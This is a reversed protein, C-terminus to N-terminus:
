AKRCPDRRHNTPPAPSEPGSALDAPTDIDRHIGPDPVVVERVALTPFLAGAGQDGALGLLRPFLARAFGAPNGPRGAHVPRVAEAGAELADALARYTSPQVFPMDGLVILAGHWDAPAAAIGARLSHALGLAHDPAVITPWSGALPRVQEGHGGVVVLAPIGARAVADLTAGLVTGGGFPLALKAAGMRRSLGAALVIAGITM